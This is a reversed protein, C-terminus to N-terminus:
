ARGWRGTRSFRTRRSARRTASASSGVAISCSWRPSRLPAAPVRPRDGSRAKGRGGRTPALRGPPRGGDAVSNPRSGSADNRGARARLPYRRPRGSSSCLGPGRLAQRCSHDRRGSIRSRPARSRDVEYTLESADAAPLKMLHTAVRMAHAEAFDDPHESIFLMSCLTKAFGGTGLNRADEGRAERLATSSSAPAVSRSDSAPDACSAVLVALPLLVVREVRM